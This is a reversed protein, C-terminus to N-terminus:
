RRGAAIWAGLGALAFAIPACAVGLAIGVPAVVGLVVLLAALALVAALGAELVYPHQAVRRGGSALGVVAASMPFSMVVGLVLLLAAYEAAPGARDIEGFDIRASHGVIVAGALGLVMGGVNGLAGLAIWVPRVGGRRLQERALARITEQGVSRLSSLPAAGHRALRLVGMAAVACTLLGLGFAAIVGIATRRVALEVAGRAVIAGLAYRGFPTGGLKGDFKSRALGYGWTAALGIDDFALVAARVGSGVPSRQVFATVALRGVVLGAAAAAAALPPDVDDTLARSLVPWVIIALLLVTFPGIIGFSFLALGVGGTGEAIRQGVAVDFVLTTIARVVIAAVVGGMTLLMWPLMPWAKKGARLRRAVAVLALTAAVVLLPPFLALHM